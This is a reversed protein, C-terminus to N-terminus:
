SACQYLVTPTTVKLSDGNANAFNLQAYVSDGCPALSPDFRYACWITDEQGPLLRTTWDAGNIKSVIQFSFTFLLEHTDARYLNGEKIIVTDIVTSQANNRLRLTASVIAYKPTPPLTPFGDYMGSFDQFSVGLDSINYDPTPKIETPANSTKSCSMLLMLIAAFALFHLDPINKM